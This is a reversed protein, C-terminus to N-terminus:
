IKQVLWIYDAIEDYEEKLSKVDYANNLFTDMDDLIKIGKQYYEFFSEGSKVPVYVFYGSFQGHNKQFKMWPHGTIRLYGSKPNWSMYIPMEMIGLTQLEIPAPKMKNTCSLCFFTLNRRRNDKGYENIHYIREKSETILSNMCRKIKYCFPSYVGQRMRWDYQSLISDYEANYVIPKSGDTCIAVLEEGNLSFWIKHNIGDVQHSKLDFEM